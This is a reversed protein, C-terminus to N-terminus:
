KKRRIETYNLVNLERYNPAPGIEVLKVASIEVDVFEHLLKESSRAVRQIADFHDIAQQYTCAHGAKWTKTLEDFLKVQYM